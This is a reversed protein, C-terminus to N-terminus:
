QWVLDGIVDNESSVGADCYLATANHTTQDSSQTALKM